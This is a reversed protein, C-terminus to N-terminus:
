GASSCPNAALLGYAQAYSGAAETLLGQVQDMVEASTDQRGYDDSWVSFAEAEAQLSSLILDVPQTLESPPIRGCVRTGRRSLSNPGTLPGPGAM